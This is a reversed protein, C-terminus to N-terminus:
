RLYGGALRPLYALLAAAERFYYFILENGPYYSPDPASWYVPGFGLSKAVLVARALHFRDSVVVLSKVKPALEKANKLNEYTSHSGEELLMPAEGAANKSIVRKMYEAESIDQDSIRGGSLIMLSAQGSEYVKLGQLSRNYLAPTNIAAGLVIVADAKGPIQPRTQGFVTVFLFAAVFLGIGLGIFFKLIKWFRRM